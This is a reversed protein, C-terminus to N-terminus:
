FASVDSAVISYGQFYFFLQKAIKIEAFFRFVQSHIRIIM